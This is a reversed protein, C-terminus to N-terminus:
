LSLKEVGGTLHQTRNHGGARFLGTDILVEEPKDKQLDSYLNRIASLSPTRALLSVTVLRDRSDLDSTQLRGNNPTVQNGTTQLQAGQLLTEKAVNLGIRDRGNLVTSQAVTDRLERRLEFDLKASVPFSYTSNLQELRQKTKNGWEGALSALGGIAGWPDGGKGIAAEAKVTIADVDDKESIAQLSGVAGNIRDAQVQAGALRLEGPANFDVTDATLRANAYTSSQLKDYDLKFDVAFENLSYTQNKNGTQGGLTFSASILKNDRKSLSRAANIHIGGSSADLAIRRANAQLGELLIAAVHDSGATVALDERVHWQAGRRLTSTEDTQGIEFGASGVLPLGGTPTQASVKLSGSGGYVDGKATASDISALVVVSEGANVSLSEVPAQQSGIDTGQMIINGKANLTVAGSTDIRGGVGIIQTSELETYQGSGAIAGGTVVPVPAVIGSLQAAGRGRTGDDHKVISNRAQRLQLNGGSDIRIPGNESSMLTGEYLGDTGLQIAIGKKGVLSGVVATEVTKYQASSYGRAGAGLAWDAITSTELRAIADVGLADITTRVSNRAADLTHSGASLAIAGVTSEYQTGVDHLKGTVAIDIDGGKFASVRAIDTMSQTSRDLYDAKLNIGVSWPLLGEELGNSYLSTQDVGTWLKQVQRAIAGYDLSSGASLKIKNYDLATKTIDTVAQNRVNDARVRLLQGAEVHAAQTTLNKATLYADKGAKITSRTHVRESRGDTDTQLAFASGSGIRDLGATIEYGVTRGTAQNRFSRLAQTALIRIDEATLMADQEAEVSSGVIALTKGAELTVNKGKLSSGKHTSLKATDLTWQERSGAGANWQGSAGQAGDVPQGSGPGAAEVFVTLNWDKGKLTSESSQEGADVTLQGQSKIKLDGGASINSGTIRTDKRSELVVEGSADLSSGQYTHQTRDYSRDSSSFLTSDLRANELHKYAQAGKVTLNESRSQLSIDKAQVQAAVLEVRDAKVEVKGANAKLQSGRYDTTQERDHLETRTRRVIVHGERSDQVLNGRLEVTGIDVTDIGALDIDGRSTLDSGHVKVARGALRVSQGELRSSAATQVRQTATSDLRQAGQRKNSVSVRDLTEDINAIVELANGARVAIDGGSNIHTAALKANNGATLTVDHSADLSNILHQDQKKYVTTTTAGAPVFYWSNDVGTRVSSETTRTLTDLTLNAGADATISAGRANVSTINLDGASSLRLDGDGANLLGQTPLGNRQATSTIHLNGRSAVDIGQRAEVRSVGMNIGAGERTSLINIRSAHMAGVLQADTKFSNQQINSIALSDADVRHSGLLIDLNQQASIQGQQDVMPAILALSGGNVTVGAGNVRLAARPDVTGGTDFGAIRGNEVQPRGVLFTAQRDVGLNVRAGNLSIGNPNALVYDAAQGFIVQEGNIDSRRRGIVENLITSAAQGRFQANAQVDRFEGGVHAQGAQLSNNLVVGPVGVNYQEYRNHSLGAANPAVIDIVPARGPNNMVIPKNGPEVAPQIVDASAMYPALVISAIALRLTDRQVCRSLKKM